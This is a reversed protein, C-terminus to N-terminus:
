ETMAICFSLVLVRISKFYEQGYFFGKETSLWSSFSRERFLFLEPFTYEGIEFIRYGTISSITTCVFWGDPTDEIAALAKKYIENREKKTLPETKM